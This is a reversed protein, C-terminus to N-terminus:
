RSLRAVTQSPWYARTSAGCVNGSFPSFKLFATGQSKTHVVRVGVNGDFQDHKFSLQQYEAYTKQGEPNVGLAGPSASQTSYDGNFTHGAAPDLM